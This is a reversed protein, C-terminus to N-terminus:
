ENIEKPSKDWFSVELKPITNIESINGTKMKFTQSKIRKEFEDNVLKLFYRLRGNSSVILVADEPNHIILLNKFFEKVEKEVGAETKPWNASKPWISKENWEAIEKKGSKEIIEDTSLGGWEGYDLEDLRHDIHFDNKFDIEEKVTKAFYKTRKLSASYIASLEINNDKIYSAVEKAQEIGKEVLLYDEKLGAWVVKDEPGFTNGHRALIIRM